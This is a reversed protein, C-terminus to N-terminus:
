VGAFINTDFSELTEPTGRSQLGQLEVWFDEELPDYGLSELMIWTAYAHPGLHLQVARKITVDTRMYISSCNGYFKLWHRFHRISVLSAAKDDETLKKIEKYLHIAVVVNLLSALQNTLIFQSQPGVGLEKDARRAYDGAEYLINRLEYRYDVVKPNLGKIERSFYGNTMIEKLLNFKGNEM